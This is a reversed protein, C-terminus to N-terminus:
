PQYIAGLIAPQTAGTVAKCNGPLQNIRQHALWAFAAAEVYDPDVGLHASSVVNITPLCYALMEMIVPNHVGGGCVIVTSTDSPVADAITTATLQCLTTLVDLKSPTHPLQCLHDKLWHQNFYERGTSKPAPKVFYPDTLLQSLLAENVKGQKALAGDKDYPQGFHHQVWIDVLTNGPGTDFGLPAQHPQLISVNGIGGINVVVTTDTNGPHFIKEHFAPVLPAGQGGYAMDMRRLDGVVPIGTMAAVLSNDGIQMTFPTESEPEHWITQGHNGIATILSHPFELRTLWANIKEGYFRGLLHECQGLESLSTSGSTILRQLRQRLAKPYQENTTHKIAFSDTTIAAIVLDIGDLSTGTMVGIFVNEQM